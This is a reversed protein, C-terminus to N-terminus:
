AEHLKELHTLGSGAGVESEGKCGCPLPPIPWPQTLSLWAEPVMALDPKTRCSNVKHRGPICWHPRADICEECPPQCCAPSLITFGRTANMHADESRKRRCSSGTGCAAVLTSARVSCRELSGPCARCLLSRIPGTVPEVDSPLRVAM